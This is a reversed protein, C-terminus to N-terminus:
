HSSELEKLIVDHAGGEKISISSVMTLREKEHFEPLSISGCNCMTSKIKSVTLSLNDKLPGAYPIYSDVGEEFSLKNKAEGGMDYRQWNRARNSGEGWYEKVFSGNRKVKRLDQM